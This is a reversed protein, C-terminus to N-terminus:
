SLEARHQAHILLAFLGTGGIINGVLAPGILGVAALVTLKGSLLLIWVETSGAVVHAFDGASIMYTLILIVLVGASKARPLIWVVLAIIFGAPIAYRLAEFPTKEAFRLSITIIAELYVDEQLRGLAVCSAAMLTGVMNGLFVISWLRLMQWISTKSPARMVPLVATLTTETFLQMGGLIVALFGVTYGIREVAERWDTDPLVVHLIATCLVSLSVAMGAAVASFFLSSAPRDMQDIGEQSVTAHVELSDPPDDVM